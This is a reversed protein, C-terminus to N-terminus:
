LSDARNMLDSECSACLQPTSSDAAAGCSACRAREAEPTLEPFGLSPLEWAQVGHLAIYHRPVLFVRGDPVTVPVEAGLHQVMREVLAQVAPDHYHLPQGCHCLPPNPQATM